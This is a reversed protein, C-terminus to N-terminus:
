LAVLRHIDLSPPLFTPPNVRHGTASGNPRHHAWWEVSTVQEELSLEPFSRSVLPLLWLALQQILNEPDSKKKTSLPVNYSFFQPTPYSHHSWFHSSPLFFERLSALLTEPFVNDYCCVVGKTSKLSAKNTEDYSWVGQGLKFRYNLESLYQDAKSHLASQCYLLALEYAANDREHNKADHYIELLRSEFSSYQNQEKLILIQDLPDHELAAEKVADSYLRRRKKNKKTGAGTFNSM